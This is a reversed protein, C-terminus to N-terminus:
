SERASILQGEVVPRNEDVQLAEPNDIDEPHAGGIGDGGPEGGMRVNPDDGAVPMPRVRLTHPAAGRVGDLHGIAEM